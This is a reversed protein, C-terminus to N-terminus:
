PCPGDHSKSVGHQRRDCDGLYTNGDCGCEAPGAICDAAIPEGQCTGTLAASMGAPRDCFTAGLCDQNSLCAAPGGDADSRTGGSCGAGALLAAVFIGRRLALGVWM